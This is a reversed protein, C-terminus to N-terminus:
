SIFAARVIKAYIMIKFQVAMYVVGVSKKNFFEILM